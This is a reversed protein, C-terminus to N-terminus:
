VVNSINEEFYEINKFDIEELKSVLNYIDYTFQRIWDVRANYYFSELRCTDILNLDLFEVVSLTTLNERM